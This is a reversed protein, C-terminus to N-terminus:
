NEVRLDFVSTWAGVDSPDLRTSHRQIITNITRMAQKDVTAAGWAVGTNPNLASFNFVTKFARAREKVTRRYDRVEFDHIAVLGPGSFRDAIANITATRAQATLSDDVFILDYPDLSLGAVAGSMAGDVYVLEHRADAPLSAKITDIWQNDDEFSKLSVLDPFIRRNLFAFTSHLGAGFEVVQRIPRLRALGVLVPISTAYAVDSRPASVAADWYCSLRSRVTRIIASM